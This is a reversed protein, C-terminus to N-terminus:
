KCAAIKTLVGVTQCEHGVVLSLQFHIQNTTENDAFDSSKRVNWNGVTNSAVLLTFLCFLRVVNVVCDLCRCSNLIRRDIRFVAEVSSQEDGVHGNWAYGLYGYSQFIDYGTVLIIGDVHQLVAGHKMGSGQLRIVEM